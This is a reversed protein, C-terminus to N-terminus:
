KLWCFRTIVLAHLVVLSLSSMVGRDVWCIGWYREGILQTGLAEMGERM